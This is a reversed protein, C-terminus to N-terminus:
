RDRAAAQVDRGGPDGAWAAAPHAKDCWLVTMTQKSAGNRALYSGVTDVVCACGGVALVAHDRLTGAPIERAYRNVTAARM